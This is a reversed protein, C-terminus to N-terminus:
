KCLRRVVLPYEHGESMTFDGPKKLGFFLCVFACFLKKKLKNNKFLGGHFENSASRMITKKLERERWPDTSNVTGLELRGRGKPALFTGWSIRQQGVENNNKKIRKRGLPGHQEGNGTGLLRQGRSCLLCSVSSM